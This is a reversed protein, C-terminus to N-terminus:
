RDKIYNKKNKDCNPTFSSHNAMHQTGPVSKTLINIKLSRNTTNKLLIRFWGQM